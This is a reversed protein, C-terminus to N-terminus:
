AGANINIAEQIRSKVLEALETKKMGAYEEPMIPKLYHVQTRVRKLSNGDMAKYSDILAVPVVPVGADIACKFVGAKFEQLTNKNDGYQGEPFILHVKGNKLDETVLRLTKMQQRPNKLDIPHGEVLPLMQKVVIQKERKADIIITLPRNHSAVIGIGDYHGQHNAYMVYNEKEPLNHLGYVDTDVNSNRKLRRVMKQVQRYKAHEDYKEPHKMMYNCRPLERLMFFLSRLVMVAFRLMLNVLRENVYFLVVNLFNKRSKKM